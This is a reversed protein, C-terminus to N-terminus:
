VRRPAKSANTWDRRFYRGVFFGQRHEKRNKKDYSRITKLERKLLSTQPRKNMMEKNHQMMHMSLIQYVYGEIMMIRIM